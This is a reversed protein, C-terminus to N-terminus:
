NRKQAAADLNSKKDLVELPLQASENPKWTYSKAWLSENPFSLAIMAGRPPSPNNPIDRVIQLVQLVRVTRGQLVPDPLTIVPGVRLVSKGNSVYHDNKVTYFRM